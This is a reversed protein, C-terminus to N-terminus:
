AALSALAVSVRLALNSTASNTIRHRWARNWIRWEFIKKEM